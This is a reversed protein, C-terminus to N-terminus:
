RGGLLGSAVAAFALSFPVFALASVWAFRWLPVRASGAAANVVHNGFPILRGLVLFAPHGVPFRRLLKPMAAESWGQRVDDGIRRFVGYEILAGLFWGAWSLGAGIAFGYIATHALAFLESPFPSAALVAHIVVLVGGTALGFRERISEPGGLADM